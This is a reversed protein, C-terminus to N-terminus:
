RHRKQYEGPSIGNLKKFYRGMHSQNAFGSQLAIDSLTLQAKTNSLLQKVNDIRVKLLYEQPTMAFQTKFMRCFHYESLQALQALESLFIQRHFHSHIFAKVEKAVKPALGGKLPGMKLNLGTTQLLTVLVTDTIHAMLLHNDTTHWNLGAVQHRFLAALVPNDAFTLEPLQVQRPDKDFVQVALKKLHADSFYLHMFEQPQGLQWHSQSGQPMLCFKSPAGFDAQIDTRHTEFGGSLYMSLTHQQNNQYYLRESANQYQAWSLDETLAHHRFCLKASKDFSIYKLTM